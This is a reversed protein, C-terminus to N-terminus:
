NQPSILILINRNSCIFTEAAFKSPFAVGSKLVTLISSSFLLIVEKQLVRQEKSLKEFMKKKKEVSIHGEFLKFNL